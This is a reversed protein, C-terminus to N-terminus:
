EVTFKTGKTEPDKSLSEIRKDILERIGKLMEMRARRFHESAGEPPGMARVMRTISPGFGGCLCDCAAGPATKEEATKDFEESM